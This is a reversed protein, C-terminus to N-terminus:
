SRTAVRLLYYLLSILSIIILIPSTVFFFNGRRYVYIIISPLREIEPIYKLIVPLLLFIAGLLMLFLGLITFPRYLETELM